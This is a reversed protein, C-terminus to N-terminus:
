DVSLLNALLLAAVGNHAVALALPLGNHVLLVGVALQIGVLLLLAFGVWRRGSRMLIIAAASVALAAVAAAWRHLTHVLAGQGNVSLISSDFHPERLPNLAAWPVPTPIICDTFNPCSLGAFSSSVLGGLVIQSLLIAVAVGRWVRTQRSLLPGDSQGRGIVAMRWCLAFLLFGGLLNGLTVAPVRAGATWRGLVALFLVLTLALLATWRENWRKPQMTFGGLVLVLMLPLLLIALFRHAFRAVTVSQSAQTDTARPIGHQEDRLTQGYCHPWPSCGLGAGSLRIFASISVITIVILACLLAARRLLTIRSDKKNANM